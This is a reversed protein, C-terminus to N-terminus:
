GTSAEAGSGIPELRRERHDFVCLEGVGLRQLLELASDYHAGVDEPRHADSSLALSAGAQLCM